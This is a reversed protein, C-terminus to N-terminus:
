GRGRNQLYGGRAAYDLTRAMKEVQIEVPMHWCMLDERSMAPAEAADLGRQIRQLKANSGIGAGSVAFFFAVLFGETKTTGTEKDRRKKADDKIYFCRWRRNLLQLETRM